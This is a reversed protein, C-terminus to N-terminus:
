YTLTIQVHIGICVQMFNQSSGESEPPQVAAKTPHNKGKAVMYNKSPLPRNM